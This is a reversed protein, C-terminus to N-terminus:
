CVEDFSSAQEEGSLHVDFSEGCKNCCVTSLLEFGYFQRMYRSSKIPKGHRDKTEIRSAGEPQGDDDIQFQDDGADDDWGEVADGECKHDFSEEVEIDASKLVTGCDACNLNVTANATVTTGDSDVIVSNLEAEPEDYSVFKNCNPCRM